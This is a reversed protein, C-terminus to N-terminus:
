ECWANEKRVQEEEEPTFDNKIDFTARIEEVTKGKIMNAIAKCAVDLLGKIDLYNSALILHFIIQKDITVKLFTQDWEPIPDNHHEREEDETPISDDKHHECWQLVLDLIDSTVNPVPIPTIVTQDEEDMNLDTLMTNITGSLRLVNREVEFTKEDSSTLKIM